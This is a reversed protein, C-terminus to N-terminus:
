LPPYNSQDQKKEREEREKKECPKKKTQMKSPRKRMTRGDTDMGNGSRLAGDDRKNNRRNLFIVTLKFVRGGEFQRSGLGFDVREVRKKKGNFM